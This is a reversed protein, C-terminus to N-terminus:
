FYSKSNMRNSFAHNKSVSESHPQLNFTNVFNRGHQIHTWILIVSAPLSAPTCPHLSAPPRSWGPNRYLAKGWFIFGFIHELYFALFYHIDATRFTKFGYYVNNRM